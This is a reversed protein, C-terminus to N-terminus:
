FFRCCVFIAIISGISKLISLLRYVASFFIKSGLGRLIDGDALRYPIHLFAPTRCVRSVVFVFSVAAMTSPRLEELGWDPYYNMHNKWHPIVRIRSYRALRTKFQLDVTFRSLYVHKSGLGRLIDFGRWCLPISHTPICSNQLCSVSCFYILGGGDHMTSAWGSRLRSLLEYIKKTASNCLYPKLSVL